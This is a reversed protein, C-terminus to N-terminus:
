YILDQRSIQPLDNKIQRIITSKGVGRIGTFCYRKLYESNFEM